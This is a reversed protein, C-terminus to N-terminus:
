AANRTSSQRTTKDIARLEELNFLRSLDLLILLRDELKGIGMIYSSDVSSSTITPTAEVINRDIRLVEHVCDVIFGLVRGDVEVVIIRSSEVHKTLEMDFRKRLDVVPIIRGRLNIVGEVCTPSEPVKTITMMRNIEQVLLINVAFEESGVGFSVLQLQSEDAGDNNIDTIKTNQTDTTTDSM